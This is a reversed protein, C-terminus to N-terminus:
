ARHCRSLHGEQGQHRKLGGGEAPKEKDHAPSALAEPRGLQDDARLAACESRAAGAHHNRGSRKTILLSSLVLSIALLGYYARFLMETRPSPRIM